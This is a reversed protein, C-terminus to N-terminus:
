NIIGAPFPFLKVLLFDLMGLCLAACIAQKPTLRPTMKLWAIIGGHVAASIGVAWWFFPVGTMAFLAALPYSFALFIKMIAEWEHGRVMNLQESLLSLYLCSPVVVCLILSLLGKKAYREEQTPIYM